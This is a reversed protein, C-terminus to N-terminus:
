KKKKKRRKYAFQKAMETASKTQNKLQNHYPDEPSDKSTQLLNQAMNNWKNFPLVSSQLGDFSVSQNNEFTQPHEQGPLFRKREGGKKTRDTTKYLNLKLDNALASKEKFYTHVHEVNKPDDDSFGISVPAGIYEGYKKCKEVFADLALEKAKEPNSASAAGFKKAFSDSSVGYYDCVNLYEQILPTQSINGKPIRDYNVDSETRFIFAHKLCNNYLSYKQDKTLVNDIIWEVGRKMSQPEHGRATIIAFIDGDVLCQIFADWSPGTENNSIAIKVDSLFADSGRSGFDRFESFAKTPDNDRLRWNEKDNRVIAFESTSVDVPEWEDDGVKKDMLIKTPMHLINDDWDLAYYALESPQNSEKIYDHFKKVM